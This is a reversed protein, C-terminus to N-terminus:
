IEGNVLVGRKEFLDECLGMTAQKGPSSDGTSHNQAGSFTIEIKRGVKPSM